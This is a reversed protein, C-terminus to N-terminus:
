KIPEVTGYLTITKQNKSNIIVRIDIAKNKIFDINGFWSFHWGCDIKIFESDDNDWRINRIHQFIDKNQIYQSYTFAGGGVGWGTNIHRAILM